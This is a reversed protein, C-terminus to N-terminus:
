ATDLNHIELVRHLERMRTCFKTVGVSLMLPQILGSLHTLHALNSAVPKLAYFLRLKTQYNIPSTYPTYEWHEYWQATGDTFM